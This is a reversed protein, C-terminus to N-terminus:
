TSIVLPEMWILSAMRGTKGQDRRHSFFHDSQSYTCYEGGYIQTIGLGRLEIRALEYIDALWKNQSTPQFATQNNPNRSIFAEYVEVGVEFHKPGIAPGLWVLLHESVRNALTNTIIGNALGRWGAHIASVYNNRTDCCLLPLCDATMVVCIQNAQTTFSADANKSLNDACAEVVTTSHSQSIWIPEQPLQLLHTLHERNSPLALNFDQEPGIDVRRKRLTTYAKIHAPAPWLPQIFM